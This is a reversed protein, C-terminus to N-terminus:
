NPPPGAAVYVWDPPSELRVVVELVATAEVRGRPRHFEGTATAPGSKLEGPVFWNKLTRTSGPMVVANSLLTAAAMPTRPLQVILPAAVSVPVARRDREVAAASLRDAASRGGVEAIERDVLRGARDAESDVRGDTERARPGPGQREGLPVDDSARVRHDDGGAAADGTRVAVDLAIQPLLDAYVPIARSREFNSRPRVVRRDVDRDGSGTVGCGACGEEGRARGRAVM